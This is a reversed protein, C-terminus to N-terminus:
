FIFSLFIIKVSSIETLCSDVKFMDTEFTSLQHTYGFLNAILLIGCFLQCVIFM